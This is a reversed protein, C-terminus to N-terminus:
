STRLRLIAGGWDDNTVAFQEVHADGHLRVVLLDPLDASFEACVRESWARNVFRFYAFADARLQQDVEPAARELAEPTPRLPKRGCTTGTAAVFILAFM